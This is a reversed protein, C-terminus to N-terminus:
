YLWLFFTFKTYKPVNINKTLSIVLIFYIKTMKLNNAFDNKNKGVSDSM